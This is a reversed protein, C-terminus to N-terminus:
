KKRRRIFAGLLALGTGILGLSAPEPVAAAAVSDFDWSTAGPVNVLVGGGGGGGNAYVILQATEWLTSSGPITPSVNLTLSPDLSGGSTGSGSITGYASSGASTGLSFSLSWGTIAAGSEPTITFQGGVPIATGGPIAGSVTGHDTMTLILAEGTSGSSFSYFESGTTFFSMGQVGSGLGAQQSDGGSCSGSTGFSLDSYSCAYNGIPLAVATGVIPGAHANVAAALPVIVLASTRVANMMLSKAKTVYNTREM